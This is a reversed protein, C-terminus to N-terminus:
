TGAALISLQLISITAVTAPAFSSGDSTIINASVSYTGVGNSSSPAFFKLQFPITLSSSANIFNLQNPTLGVQGIAVASAGPTAPVGNTPWALPYVTIVSVANISDPNSIILAANVPMGVYTSASPFLSISATPAAM